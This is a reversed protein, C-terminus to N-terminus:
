CRTLLHTPRHGSHPCHPETFSTARSLATLAPPRARGAPDSGVVGASGSVLTSALTV